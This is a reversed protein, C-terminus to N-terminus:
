GLAEARHPAQGQVAQVIAHMEENLAASLAGLGNAAAGAMGAAPVAVVGVHEKEM